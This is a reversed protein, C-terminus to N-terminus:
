SPLVPVAGASLAFQHALLGLMAVALIAHLGNDITVSSGGPEVPVDRTTM